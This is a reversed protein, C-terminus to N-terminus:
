SAGRRELKLWQSILGPIDDYQSFANSISSGSKVMESSELLIARYVENGVVEATIELSSLVPIGSGLLTSLNDAIRALYIKRYIDGVYPFSIKIRSGVMKGAATQFYRWLFVGGIAMAILLFVGSDKVFSSFGLLVRTYIPLTGGLDNLV